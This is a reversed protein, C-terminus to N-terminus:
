VCYLKQCCTWECVEKESTKAKSNWEKGRRPEDRADARKKPFIYRRNQGDMTSPPPEHIRDAEVFVEGDNQAGENVESECSDSTGDSRLRDEYEVRDADSNRFVDGTRFDKMITFSASHLELEM